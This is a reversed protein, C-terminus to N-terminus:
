LYHAITTHYDSSTKECIAATDILSIKESFTTLKRIELFRMEMRPYSLLHSEDSSQDSTTPFSLFANWPNNLLANNHDLFPCPSMSIERDTM